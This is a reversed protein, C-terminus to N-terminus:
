AGSPAHTPRKKRVFASSGDVAYRIPHTLLVVTMDSRVLRGRRIGADYGGEVIDISRDEGCLELQV